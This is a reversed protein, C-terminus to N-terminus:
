QQKKYIIRILKFAAYLLVLTAIVLSLQGLTDSMASFYNGIITLLIILVFLVIAIKLIKSM